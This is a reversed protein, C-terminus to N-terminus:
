NPDWFILESTYDVTRYNPANYSQETVPYMVRTPLRDPRSTINSKNSAIDFAPAGGPVTAPYGTRRYENWAEDSTIMNMAIYKQTIIAELREPNGTAAEIEVLDNGANAALYTAVLPAFAVKVADNEDKCMYRFSATIGEYYSTIYSGAVDGNLQAEALLFKAEAHLMLPRAMGPGKLVGTGEYGAQNSAWTVQGSVITPNGVENGLQNTPTSPYNVFLTEGRGPDTIKVGNYFAFSFTTPIRSSNALADATTRGWTAWTPNPRNKDYGPDVEADDTLFAEGGPIVVVANDTTLTVDSFTTELAAFGASVDTTTSLRVLMRLKLTNAYRKWDLMEEGVPREGAVGFLPDNAYRLSLAAGSAAAADITAIADDLTALLATYIEAADDYAPANIGEDGRLAETYPIDGFADVLRQYNVVSMIKAAGNFYGMEVNGETKEIVYQLDALPDQYCNVWMANYDSPTLNYTLLTGFGSFGGANAIFGGFHGGYSNFQNAVSASAVIAQPLVLQVDASIPANPNENINLFDDCSAVFFMLVAGAWIKIDIKKM